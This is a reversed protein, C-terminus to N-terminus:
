VLIDKVDAADTNLGSIGVSDLAPILCFHYGFNLPLLSWDWTPIMTFVIQM